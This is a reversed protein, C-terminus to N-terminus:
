RIGLRALIEIIRVERYTEYMEGNLRILLAMGISSKRRFLSGAEMLGAHTVRM